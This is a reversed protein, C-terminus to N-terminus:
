FRTFNKLLKVYTLLNQDNEVFTGRKTNDIAFDYNEFDKNLNTPLFYISM